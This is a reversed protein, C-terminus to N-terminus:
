IESCSIWNCQKQNIEGILHYLVKMEYFLKSVMICISNNERAYFCYEYEIDILYRYGPFELPDDTNPLNKTFKRPFRVFIKTGGERFYDTNKQSNARSARLMKQGGASCIKHSDPSSKKKM